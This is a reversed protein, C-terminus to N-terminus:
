TKKDNNNEHNLKKKHTIWFLTCFVLLFYAWFLITLLHSWGDIIRMISAVILLSILNLGIFIFAVQSDSLGLFSLHHTTHDKGGIFPSKGKMLRNIVVITTDCFPLLFGILVLTLQKAQIVNGFHDTGNWFYKIGYFALFMGLFQSGTDGMFLKSPFWNHFLFGILAALVGTLVLFDFSQPTDTAIICLIFMTIIGASVSGTIGDMNDLMNISNMIGVIWLITLTINLWEYPTTKIYIDCLYMIIGCAVQVSFKLLPKTNYADDALGMTFALTCVLVLALISKNHFNYSSEFLFSFIALTILFVIFFTIGGLAPKSVTSWRIVTDNKDRIGLNKSFSLLISNIVITFIVMSIFFIANVWFLHNENFM